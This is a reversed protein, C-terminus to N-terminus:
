LVTETLICLSIFIHKKVCPIPLRGADVEETESSDPTGSSESQFGPLDDESGLNALMAQLASRTPGPIVVPLCSLACLDVCM